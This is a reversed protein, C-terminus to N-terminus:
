KKEQFFSQRESYTQLLIELELYEFYAFREKDTATTFQLM